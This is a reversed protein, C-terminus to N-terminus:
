LAFGRECLYTRLQKRARELTKSVTNQPMGCDCAIESVSEAYWYRRLFISRKKASLSMLFEGIVRVLEQRDMAQEVDDNDSVCDGLEELVLAMEGGGRKQAHNCKYRNFSLNRTIKGLYVSLRNPQRPPISKWAGLWTDNLCEQADENSHLIHYSISHCYSGYKEATAAIAQEDRKWYLAIIEEDKM